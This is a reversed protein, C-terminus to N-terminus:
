FSTYKPFANVWILSPGWFRNFSFKIWTRLISNGVSGFPLSHLFLLPGLGAQLIELYETLGNWKWCECMEERETTMCMMVWYMQFHCIFFFFSFCEDQEWCKALFNYPFLNKFDIISHNLISNQPNRHSGLGQKPLDMPFGKKPLVQYSTTSSCDKCLGRSETKEIHPWYM